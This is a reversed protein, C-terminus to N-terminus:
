YQRRVTFPQLCTEYLQNKKKANIQNRQLRDTTRNAFSQARLSASFSMFSCQRGRSIDSIRELGPHIIEAVILKFKAHYMQLDSVSEGQCRLLLALSSLM